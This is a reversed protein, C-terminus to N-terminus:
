KKIESIPFGPQNELNLMANILFLKEYTFLSEVSVDEEYIQNEVLMKKRMTGNLLYTTPTIYKNGKKLVINSRSTDTIKGNKVIVVEDAGSSEVLNKLRERDEYKFSYDIMDDYVLRITKPLRKEYLVFDVSHIQESYVIKCKYSSNNIDGPLQIADALIIREKLGFLKERTLDFRAQHYELNCVKKNEVRIAETLLCM